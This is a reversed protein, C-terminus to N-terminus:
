QYDTKSRKKNNQKLAPQQGDPLCPWAPDSFHEALGVSLLCFCVKEIQGYFIFARAPSKKVVWTQYVTRGYPFFPHMPIASVSGVAQFHCSYHSRFSAITTRAEPPLQSNHVSNKDADVGM